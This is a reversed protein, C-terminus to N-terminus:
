DIDLTRIFLELNKKAFIDSEERLKLLDPLAPRFSRTVFWYSDILEPVTRNILHKEKTPLEGHKRKHDLAELIIQRALVLDAIILEELARNEFIKNWRDKFDTRKMAYIVDEAYYSWLKIMRMMTKPEAVLHKAGHRLLFNQNMALIVPTITMRRDQQKKYYSYMYEAHWFYRGDLIRILGDNFATALSHFTGYDINTKGRAAESLSQQVERLALYAQEVAFLTNLPRYALCDRDDNPCKFLTLRLRQFPTKDDEALKPDSQFIELIKNIKNRTKANLNKEDSQAFLSALYALQFPDLSGYNLAKAFLPMPNSLVAMPVKSNPMWPIGKIKVFPILNASCTDLIVLSANKSGPTLRLEVQEDNEKILAIGDGLFRYAEPYGKLQERSLKIKALESLHLPQSIQYGDPRSGAQVYPLHFTRRPKTNHGGGGFIVNAGFFGQTVGSWPGPGLTFGVLPDRKAQTSQVQREVQRQASLRKLCSVIVEKNGQAAFECITRPSWLPYFYLSEEGRKGHRMDQDFMFVSFAATGQPIIMESLSTGLRDQTYTRQAGHSKLFFLTQDFGSEYGYDKLFDMLWDQIASLDEPLFLETAKGAPLAKM